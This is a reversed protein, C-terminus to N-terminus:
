YSKTSIEINIALKLGINVFYDNNLTKAIINPNDTLKIMKSFQSKRKPLNNPKYCEM